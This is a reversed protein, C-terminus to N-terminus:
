RRSDLAAFARTAEEARHADEASLSNANRLLSWNQLAAEYMANAGPNDAVKALGAALAAESRAWDSRFIANLPELQSRMSAIKEAERFSQVADSLENLALDSNGAALLSRGCSASTFPDAPGPANQCLINEAQTAHRLAATADGAALLGESVNRLIVGVDVRYQASGPADRHLGEALSLAHENHSISDSIRGAGRLAAASQSEMIAERRRYIANQPDTKLLSRILGVAHSLHPLAAVPNRDDLLMQGLRAEANSYEVKVHSDEPLEANVKEIQRLTEGLDRAAENRMGMTTESSSLSMLAKYSTKAVDVNGPFQAVLKTALANAEHYYALSEATKGLNPWGYGGYLDGMKKLDTSLALSNDLDKPSKVSIEQRLGIARQYSQDAATLDGTSFLLDGFTSFAGAASNLAPPTRDKRLLGEAAAAAKRASALAGAPDGLNNEYENGQVNSLRAYADVIERQLQPTDAEKALNDLYTLADKVMQARVPTSGPLSDLADAYNFMVSHALQRLENFRREARARALAVEVLGGILSCLVTTAALVMVLNRRVFKAALYLPADGRAQVPRGELYRGIDDSFQAVSAYRELPSKRLARLIIRDLDGKLARSVDSRKPRNTFLRTLRGPRGSKGSVKPACASPRPPEDECVARMIEHPARDIDGYPSSGTLLEYLIVGLSYVDSSTTVPQGRVQEPSSYRVTMRAMLPETSEEGSPVPGPTLIKAIGFDLLKPTGQWTVLINAPKLDRHIVMNQHAYHVASCIQRFLALRRDIALDHQRCYDGPSVGDVYEMILYPLGDERAGGDLVRAINPHQLNALIQREARFKAIVDPSYFAAKILKVAVSMEIENDVRVARYVSGMGGSGVLEVLRYNGVIEGVASDASHKEAIVQNRLASRQWSEDDMAAGDAALLDHLEELLAQDDGCASALFPGREGPSLGIAREFLDRLNDDNTL